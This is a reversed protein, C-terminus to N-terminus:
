HKGVEGGLDLAASEERRVVVHENFVEAVYRLLDSEIVHLALALALMELEEIAKDWSDCGLREADQDGFHRPDIVFHNREGLGLRFLEVGLNVHQRM